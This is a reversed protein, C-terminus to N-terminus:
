VSQREFLASARSKLFRFNARLWRKTRRVSRRWTPRNRPEGSVLLRSWAAMRHSYRVMAFGWRHLQLLTLLLNVFDLYLTLAGIIAKKGAVQVDDHRGYLEKIHQTDYATLSVFVVVGIMEIALQLPSSAFIMNTLGAITIGILGMLLLVGLRSLDKRTAYGYGSMIVFTGATILFTRAINARAYLEFLGSLSFGVLVAYAWFAVHATTVNMKEIRYSLWMVLILPAALAVALLEPAKELETYFGLRDNFYATAATVLLGLAMYAHVRYLFLRAAHPPSSPHSAVVFAM